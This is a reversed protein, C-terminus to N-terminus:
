RVPAANSVERTRDQVYVYGRNPWANGDSETIVHGDLRLARVERRISAYPFGTLRALRQVTLDTGNHPNTYQQLLRLITEKQSM